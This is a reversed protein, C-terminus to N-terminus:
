LSPGLPRTRNAKCDPHVTGYVSQTGDGDISNGCISCTTNDSENSM